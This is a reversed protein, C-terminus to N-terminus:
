KICGGLVCACVFLCVFLFNLKGHMQKSGLLLSTNFNGSFIRMVFMMCPMPYYDYKFVSCTKKRLSLATNPDLIQHSFSISTFFNSSAAM